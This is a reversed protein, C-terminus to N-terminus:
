GLISNNDDQSSLSILSPNGGTARRRSTSLSKTDRQDTVARDLIDPASSTKPPPPPAASVTPASSQQPMSPKPAAFSSLVSIIPAVFGGM